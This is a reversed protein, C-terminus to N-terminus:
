RSIATKAFWIVGHRSSNQMSLFDIGSGRCCMSHLGRFVTGSAVVCSPLSLLFLCCGAARGAHARLHKAQDLAQEHGALGHRRHARYGGSRREALLVELAERSAYHNHKDIWWGLPNLNDDLLEGELAEVRGEVAIHEDMWRDESRGRGFRFLRLVHAPFVGGYRIPRGLFAIRRPLTLGAVEEPLAPLRATIEGALESSVVEDADLRLVWDTDAPLQDLAWNFQQAQNVFLHTLVEAGMARAIEVTRDTSGSDVVFTVDAIAAVSRLAREIHRAENVTLIVVTVSM